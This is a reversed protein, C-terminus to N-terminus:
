RLTSPVLSPVISDDDKKYYPSDEFEVYAEASLMGPLLVGAELLQDATGVFSATVSQLRPPTEEGSASQLGGGGASAAAIPMMAPTPPPVHQQEPDLSGQAHRQRRGVRIGAAGRRPPTRSRNRLTLARNTTRGGVAPMSAAAATAATTVPATAATAGSSPGPGGTTTTSPDQSELQENSDTRRWSRRKQKNQNRRKQQRSQHRSPSSSTSQYDNDTSDVARVMTEPRVPLPSVTRESAIYVANMAAPLIAAATAPPATAARARASNSDATAPAADSYLRIRNEQQQHQQQQQRQQHQQQQNRKSRKGFLKNLKRVGRRLRGGQCSRKAAEFDRLRDELGQQEAANPPPPPVAILDGDVLIFEADAEFDIDTRASTAAAHHANDMGGTEESPASGITPLEPESRVSFTPLEPHSHHMNDISTRVLDRVFTAVPYTYRPTTGDGFSTEEVVVAPAVPPNRWTRLLLPSSEANSAAAATDEMENNHRASEEVVQQGRELDREQQQAQQQEAAASAANRIM